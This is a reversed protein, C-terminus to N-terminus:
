WRRGWWLGVAGSEIGSLDARVVGIAIDVTGDGDVDGAGTVAHGLWVGESEGEFRATDASELTGELPGYFLWARGREDDGYRRAGVLVEGLGDGDIDGPGDVSWGGQAGTPFGEVRADAEALTLEGSVPGLWLAALGAEADVGYAGVLVDDYGDGDVDGALAVDEGARDGREVGRLAAAASELEGGDLPATLLWAVGTGVEAGPAGVIADPLGDGDVDRGGDVAAGAEDAAAGSWLICADSASQEGSFGGRLVFAAGEGREAGFAGIIADALGDGDLDGAPALAEGLGDGAADGYIRGAARSALAGTGEVPGRVLYVVGANAASADNLWAGVLLDDRSDGDTDGVGAVAHGAQDREGEGTLLADAEALSRTGTIPGLVIYAAGAREAGTPEFHAGVVLDAQGDGNLDGAASVANGAQDEEREGILLADADSLVRDGLLACTDHAAIPDENACDNIVGDGCVEEAGPYRAADDPACDEADVVGDGDADQPGTDDTVDKATCGALAVLATMWRTASM